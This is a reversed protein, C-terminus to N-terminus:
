HCNKSVSSYIYDETTGLDNEFYRMTSFGPCKNNSIM